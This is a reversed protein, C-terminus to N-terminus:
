GLRKTIDSIGFWDKQIFVELMTLIIPKRNIRVFMAPGTIIALRM